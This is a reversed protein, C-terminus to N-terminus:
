RPSSTVCKPLINCLLKSMKITKVKNSTSMLQNHFAVLPLVVSRDNSDERSGVIAVTATVLCSDHFHIIGNILRCLFIDM